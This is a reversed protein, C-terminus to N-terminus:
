LRRREPRRPHTGSSCAHRQCSVGPPLSSGPPLVVTEHATQRRVSVNSRAASPRVSGHFPSSPEFDFLVTQISQWLFAGGSAASNQGSCRFPRVSHRLRNRGTESARFLGAHALAPRDLKSSHFRAHVKLKQLMFILTGSPSSSPEESPVPAICCRYGAFRFLFVGVAYRCAASQKTM